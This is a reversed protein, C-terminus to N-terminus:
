DIMQQHRDLLKSAAHARKGEEFALFEKGVVGPEPLGFFSRRTIAQRVGVSSQVARRTAAFM